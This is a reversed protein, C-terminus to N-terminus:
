RRKSVTTTKDVRTWTTAVKEAQMAEQFALGL